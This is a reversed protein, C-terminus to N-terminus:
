EEDLTADVDPPGAYIAANVAQDTLPNSSPLLVQGVPIPVSPDAPLVLTVVNRDHAWNVLDVGTREKKLVLEHFAISVRQGNAPVMPESFTLVITDGATLVDDDDADVVRADIPYPAFRDTGLLDQRSRHLSLPNGADDTANGGVGVFHWDVDVEKDSGDALLAPNAVLALYLFTRDASQTWTTDGGFTLRAASDNAGFITDDGDHDALDFTVGDRVVVPVNFRITILDGQNLVADAAGVGGPGNDTVTFGLVFPAERDPDPLEETPEEETPLEVPPETEDPAEGPRDLTVVDLDADLADTLTQAAQDTVTTGLVAAM